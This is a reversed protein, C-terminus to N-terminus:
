KSGESRIKHSVSKGDPSRWVETTKGTELNEVTASTWMSPSHSFLFQRVEINAEGNTIVDVHCVNGRYNKVVRYGVTPKM